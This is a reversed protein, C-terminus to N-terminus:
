EWRPGIARRADHERSIEARIYAVDHETARRRLLAAVLEAKLTGPIIPQLQDPYVYGSRGVGAEHCYRRVAATIRCLMDRRRESLTARPPEDPQAAPEM